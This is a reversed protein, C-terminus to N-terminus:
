KRRKEAAKEAEYKREAEDYAARSVGFLGKALSEFNGRTVKSEPTENEGAKGKKETPPQSAM